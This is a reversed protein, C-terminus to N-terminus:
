LGRIEHEFIHTAQRDSLVPPEKLLDNLFETPVAILDEFIVLDEVGSIVANRLIALTKEKEAGSLSKGKRAIGFGRVRRSTTVCAEKKFM